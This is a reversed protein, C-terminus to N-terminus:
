TPLAAPRRLPIGLPEGAPDAAGRTSVGHRRHRRSGARGDDFRDCEVLTGDPM